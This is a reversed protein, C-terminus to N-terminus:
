ASEKNTITVGHLRARRVALDLSMGRGGSPTGDPPETAGDDDADPNTVGLVEALEPQAADLADDAAAILDLVKQLREQTATSLTRGERQLLVAGAMRDIAVPDLDNHGRLSDLAELVADASRLATIRAGDYAPFTVVSVEALTVATRVVQSGPKVYASHDPTISRFGVSFGDLAGDRVLELTEDGRQTKSVAFEGYLGDRLTLPRGLPFSQRDHQGLFKVKGPNAVAEAFSGRAFQERYTVGFEYIETDVGFPCCIGAITRGDSRVELDSPAGHRLLPPAPM